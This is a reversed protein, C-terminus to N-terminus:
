LRWAVRDNLVQGSLKAVQMLGGITRWPCTTSIGTCSLTRWRKPKRMPKPNYRVSTMLRTTKNNLFYVTNCIDNLSIRRGGVFVHRFCGRYHGLWDRDLSKSRYHQQNVLSFLAPGPRM